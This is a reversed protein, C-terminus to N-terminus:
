PDYHYPRASEKSMPNEVRAGQWRDAIVCRRDAEARCYRRHLHVPNRRASKLFRGPSKGFQTPLRLADARVAQLPHRIRM